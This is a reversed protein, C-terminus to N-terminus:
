VSSICTSPVPSCHTNSGDEVRKGLLSLRAVALEAGGAPLAGRAPCACLARRRRAPSWRKPMRLPRLAQPRPEQVSCACPRRGSGAILASPLPPRGPAAGPLAGEVHSFFGLLSSAGGVGMWVRWCRHGVQWLDQRNSGGGRLWASRGKGAGQTRNLGLTGGEGGGLGRGPSWASREPSFAGVCEGSTRKGPSGSSEMSFIPM